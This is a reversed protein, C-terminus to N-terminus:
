YIRVMDWCLHDEQVEWVYKKRGCSATFTNKDKGVWKINKMLDQAKMCQELLEVDPRNKIKKMFRRTDYSSCCKIFYAYVSELALNVRYEGKAVNKVLEFYSMGGAWRSIYWAEKLQKVLNPLGVEDTFNENFKEWCKKLLDMYLLYQGEKWLDKEEFAKDMLIETQNMADLLFWQTTHLSCIPQALCM